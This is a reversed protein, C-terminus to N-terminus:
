KGGTTNGQYPQILIVLAHWIMLGCGAIVSAYPIVMPLGVSTSTRGMKAVRMFYGTVYKNLFFILFGLSVIMTVKEVYYSFKKPDKQKKGVEDILDIVVHKKKKFCMACGLYTTWLFDYRALEETWPTAIKFIYRCVVQIAVLIVLSAMGIAALWKEVTYIVEDVRNIGRIFPSSM